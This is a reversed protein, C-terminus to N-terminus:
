YREEPPPLFMLGLDTQFHGGIYILDQVPNLDSKKLNLIYNAQM